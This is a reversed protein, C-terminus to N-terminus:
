VCADVLRGVSAGLIAGACAGSVYGVKLSASLIAAGAQFGMRYPLVARVAPALVTAGIYVATGAGLVGLGREAHHSLYSEWPGRVTERLRTPRRGRAWAGARIGRPMATSTGHERPARLAIERPRTEPPTGSGSPPVPASQVRSIWSDLRAKVSTLAEHTPHNAVAMRLNRLVGVAHADLRGSREFADLTQHLEAEMRPPSSVSLAKM